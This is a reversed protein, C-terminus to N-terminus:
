LLLRDSKNHCLHNSFNATVCIRQNYARARLNSVLNPLTYFETVKIFAEIM